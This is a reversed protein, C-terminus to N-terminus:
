NRPTLEIDFNGQVNSMDAVGFATFTITGLTVDAKAEESVIVGNADFGLHEFVGEAVGGPGFQLATGVQSGSPFKLLLRFGLEDTVVGDAIIAAQVDEPDHIAAPGPFGLYVYRGAVHGKIEGAGYDGNMSCRFDGAIKNDDPGPTYACFGNPGCVEPPTCTQDTRCPRLGGDSDTVDASQGSCGPVAALWLLSRLLWSRM